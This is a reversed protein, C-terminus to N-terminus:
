GVVGVVVVAVLVVLVVVSDVAAAVAAVHVVVAAAAAALHNEDQYEIEFEEGDREDAVASVDVGPPAVDDDDRHLPHLRHPPPPPRLHPLPRLPHLLPVVLSSSVLSDRINFRNM